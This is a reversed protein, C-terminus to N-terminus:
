KAEALDWLRENMKLKQFITNWSTVTNINAAVWVPQSCSAYIIVDVGGEERRGRLVPNIRYIYYKGRSVSQSVSQSQHTIDSHSHSTEPHHTATQCTGLWDTVVSCTQGAPWRQRLCCWYQGGSIASILGSQDCWMVDCWMVDFWMVDNWKMENWKM